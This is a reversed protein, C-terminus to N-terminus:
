PCAGGATHEWRGGESLPMCFCRVKPAEAKDRGGVCSSNAQGLNDVCTSPSSADDKGAKREDMVARSSIGVARRRAVFAGSLTGARAGTDDMVCVRFPDSRSSNQDLGPKLKLPIDLTAKGLPFTIGHDCGMIEITLSVRTKDKGNTGGAASCAQQPLLTGLDCVSPLCVLKRHSSNTVFLNASLEAEAAGWPFAERRLRPSELELSLLGKSM